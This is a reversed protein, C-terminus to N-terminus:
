QCAGPSASTFKWFFGGSTKLEGRSCKSIGGRQIGLKKAANTISDYNEILVKGDKSWQEVKKSITEILKKRCDESPSKGKMAKRIKVKIEDPITKGFNHHKDGKKAALRMSAKHEESKKKGKSAISMKARTEECHNGGKGGSLLNYGKPSITDNEQIVSIERSDLEEQTCEGSWILEISFNEKGHKQIANRVRICESSKRCHTKFRFELTDWTQGIYENQDFNNSIKYIKGIVM